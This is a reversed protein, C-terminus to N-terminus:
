WVLALHEYWHFGASTIFPTHPSKLYKRRINELFWLQELFDLRNIKKKKLYM